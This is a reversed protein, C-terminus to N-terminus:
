VPVHSDDFQRNLLYLIPKELSINLPNVLGAHVIAKTQNIKQPTMENQKSSTGSGDGRGDSMSSGM